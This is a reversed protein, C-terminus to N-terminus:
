FDLQDQIAELGQKACKEDVAGGPAGSVGIGGVLEGAARIMVGGGIVAVGPLNRIGNAPTGAKSFEALAVTDTRFSIATLAKRRATEVTHPGAFRDRLIVQVSGGRDLVAVAIQFDSKRCAALTAQALKLATELNLSRFTVFTKSSAGLGAGTMLVLGMFSLLVTKFM